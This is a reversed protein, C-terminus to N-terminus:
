RAEPGPAAAAQSLVKEDAERTKDRYVIVAREAAVRRVDELHGAVTTELQRRKDVDAEMGCLDLLVAVLERAREAITM